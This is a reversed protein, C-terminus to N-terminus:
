QTQNKHGQKHNLASQQMILLYNLIIEQEETTIKSKESMEPMESRWKEESFKAPRYLYHCGGCKNQYLSHGTKLTELSVNKGDSQAREVDQETPLILPAVCGQFLLFLSILQLKTCM